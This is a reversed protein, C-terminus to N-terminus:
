TVNAGKTFSGSGINILFARRVIDYMGIVGDSKRYCPILDCILKDNKDWYRFYHIRRAGGYRASGNYNQAFLYMNSTMTYEAQTNATGTEGNSKNTLKLNGKEFIMECEVLTKQTFTVTQVGNFATGTSGYASLKTSNYPATLMCRLAGSNEAAGFPYTTSTEDIYLGM